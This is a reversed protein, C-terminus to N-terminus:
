NKKLLEIESNVENPTKAPLYPANTTKWKFDGNLWHKYAAFDNSEWDRICINKGNISTM